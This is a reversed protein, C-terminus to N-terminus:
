AKGGVLLLGPVRCIVVLVVNSWFRPHLIALTKRDRTEDVNWIVRM